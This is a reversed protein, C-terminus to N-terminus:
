PPPPLAPAASGFRRSFAIDIDFFLVELRASGRVHWPGPGRLRGRLRLNAITRSGRRIRAGASVAVDLSFPELILLADFGLDATVSFGALSAGLDVRAGLQFSNSTVALYGALRLKFGPTASLDAGLRDIPPFGPPPEFAPHLGGVSFALEPRRGWGSRLAFGGAIPIAQVISDYLRGEMDFRSASVDLVGAVDVNLRILPAREDPLTARLTGILVIRLPEPLTLVLALDLSVLERPSGWGLAVTPGFVHQGRRIPFVTGALSVITAADRVPDEPALLTRASGARVAAFLADVDVDRNVGLLGGVGKLSFGFGLPLAPAFRATVFALFSTLDGGDPARTSLLGFAHLAFGSFALALAGRYEGREHDLRVFGGGVVGSAEIGLALGDPPRFSPRFVVPGDPPTGPLVDAHLGVREVVFRLPGLKGGLTAAADVRVGGALPKVALALADIRVPGLALHMPLHLEPGTGGLLHLGRAPSHGVGFDFGIEIGDGGALSRVFGDGEGLSLIVKGGALRLFASPDLEVSGGSERFELAIGAHIRQAILRPGGLTGLVVFPEADANRRPWTLDLGLRGSEVASKDPNGHTLVRVPRGPRFEIKPKDKFTVDFTPTLEVPLDDPLRLGDPEPRLAFVLDLGDGVPVLRAMGLQLRPAGDTEDLRDIFPLGLEVGLDSLRAFLAAADFGPTGWGFLRRMPPVRADFLEAVRALRIRRRDHAPIAAAANAAVAEYDFVGLLRLARHLPTAHREVHLIVLLELLRPVLGAVVREREAREAASGGATAAIADKLAGAQNIASRTGDLLTGAAEAIREVNPVDAETEERLTELSGVAVDIDTFMGQLAGRLRGLEAVDEVALGLSALLIRFDDDGALHDPLPELVRGLERALQELTGTRETSM